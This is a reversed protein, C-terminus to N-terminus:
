LVNFLPKDHSFYFRVDGELAEAILDVTKDIVVPVIIGTHPHGTATDIGVRGFLPFDALCHPAVDIDPLLEVRNDNLCPLRVAPSFPKGVKGSKDTLVPGTLPQPLREVEAEFVPNLRKQTKGRTGSVGSTLDDALKRQTFHFCYRIYREECVFALSTEATTLKDSELSTPATDGYVM